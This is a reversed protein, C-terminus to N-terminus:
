TLMNSAREVLRRVHGSTADVGEENGEVEGLILDVIDRREQFFPEVVRVEHALDWCRYGERAAERVVVQLAPDIEAAFAGQRM